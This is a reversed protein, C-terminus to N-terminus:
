ASYGELDRQGHSKGPSFVPTPQWKRRYPIKRVWPDFGHRRRSKCQCATEKSSLWGPLGIETRLQLRFTFKMERGPTKESGGSKSCHGEWTKIAGTREEEVANILYYQSERKHIQKELVKLKQFASATDQRQIRMISILGILLFSYFPSTQM